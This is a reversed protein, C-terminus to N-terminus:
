SSQPSRPCPKPWNQVARPGTPRPTSSFHTTSPSDGSTTPNEAPPRPLGLRNAARSTAQCPQPMERPRQWSSSTATLTSKTTYILSIHASSQGRTMAQRTSLSSATTYELPAIIDREWTTLTRGIFREFSITYKSM